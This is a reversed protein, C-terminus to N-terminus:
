LNVLEADFMQGLTDVRRIGPAPIMARGQEDQRNYRRNLLYTRTTPAETACDMVNDFNDDIYVDLKLAKAIRGKARSGVILVTPYVNPVRMPYALQEYLWIETQRKSREGPRSTVFYVEHRRELEKLMARLTHTNQSHPQLKLWFALDSTIVKWVASTEEDTYGRLTPWDWVPPDVNDGPEFANRGTLSVFLAQYVPVFDALVGDIDLGIRM